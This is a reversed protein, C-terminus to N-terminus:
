VAATSRSALLESLSEMATITQKPLQKRIIPSILKALFTKATLDITHTLRTGSGAPEM